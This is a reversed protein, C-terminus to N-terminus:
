DRIRTQRAINSTEHFTEMSRRDKSRATTKVLRRSKTSPLPCTDTCKKAHDRDAPTTDDLMEFCRNMYDPEKQKHRMCFDAIARDWKKFYSNYKDASSPEMLCKSFHIFVSTSAIMAMILILIGVLRKM